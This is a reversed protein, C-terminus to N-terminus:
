QNNLSLPSINIHPKALLSFDLCGPLFKRFYLIEPKLFEALRGLEVSYRLFSILRHFKSIQLHFYGVFLFRTISSNSNYFNRRIYFKFLVIPLQYYSSNPECYM